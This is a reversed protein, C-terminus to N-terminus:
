FIVIDDEEGSTEFISQYQKAIRRSEDTLGRTRGRRRRAPWDHSECTVHEACASVHLGGPEHLTAARLSRRRAQGVTRVLALQTAARRPPPLPLPPSAPSRAAAPSSLEALRGASTGAHSSANAPTQSPTGCWGNVLTLVLLFLKGM